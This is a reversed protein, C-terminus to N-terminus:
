PWPAEVPDLGFRQGDRQITGTHLRAAIRQSASIISGLRARPSLFVACVHCGLAFRGLLAAVSAARFTGPEASFDGHGPRFSFHDLQRKHLFCTVKPLMSIISLKNFVIEGAAGTFRAVQVAVLVLRCLFARQSDTMTFYGSRSLNVRIREQASAVVTRRALACATYTRTHICMNM